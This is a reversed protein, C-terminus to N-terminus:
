WSAFEARSPEPGLLADAHKRLLDKSETIGVPAERYSTDRQDRQSLRHLVDLIADVTAQVHSESRGLSSLGLLSLREQLGRIEHRRLALYHLLNRASREYGPHLNTAKSMGEIELQGMDSRLANLERILDDLNAQVPESLRPTNHFQQSM